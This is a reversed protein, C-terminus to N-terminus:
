TTSADLTYTFVIAVLKADAGLTDNGDSANRNVQFQLMASDAPTGAFTMASTFSSINMDDTATMTSTVTQETGFAADMPDDDDYARGQISWVVDGSSSSAIWYFSATITGNNFNRPMPLLFQVHEETSNDFDFTQTMPKDTGVEASVYEAGNTTTTFMASSPVSMDQQGVVTSAAAWSETTGNSTLVFNNAGIALREPNGSSDGRRLDGQSTIVETAQAYL